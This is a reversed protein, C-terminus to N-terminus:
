FLGRYAYHHFIIFKYCGARNSNEFAKHFYINFPFILLIFPPFVQRLEPPALSLVLSVQDWVFM